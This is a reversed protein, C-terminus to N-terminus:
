VATGNLERELGDVTALVDDFPPVEGLIMGVM